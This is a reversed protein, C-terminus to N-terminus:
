PDLSVFNLSEYRLDWFVDGSQWQSNVINISVLRALISGGTIFTWVLFSLRWMLWAPNCQWMGHQPSQTVHNRLYLPLFTELGNKNLKLLKLIGCSFSFMKEWVGLAIQPFFLGMGAMCPGNIPGRGMKNVSGYCLFWKLLSCFFCPPGQVTPVCHHSSVLLSPKM